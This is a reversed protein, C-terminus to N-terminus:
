RITPFITSAGTLYQMVLHYMNLGTEDSWDHAYKEKYEERLRDLYVKIAVEKDLPSLSSWKSLINNKEEEGIDSLPEERLMEDFFIDSEYTNVLNGLFTKPQLAKQKEKIRKISNKIDQPTANFMNNIDEKELIDKDRFFAKKRIDGYVPNGTLYEIQKDSYGSQKLANITKDITKNLASISKSLRLNLQKTDLQVKKKPRLKEKSVRSEYGKTLRNLASKFQTDTIDKGKLYNPIKYGLNDFHKKLTDVKQKPKKNEWKTRKLGGLKRGYSTAM